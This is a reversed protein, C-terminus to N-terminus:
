PYFGGASSTASSGGEVPAAPPRGSGLDQVSAGTVSGSDSFRGLALERKVKGPGLVSLSDRRAALGAACSPSRASM